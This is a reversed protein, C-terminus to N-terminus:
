QYIVKNRNVAVGGTGQCAEAVVILILKSALNVSRANFTFTSYNHLDVIRKVAGLNMIM